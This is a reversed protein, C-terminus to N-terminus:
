VAGTSPAKALATLRSAEILVFRQNACAVRYRTSSLKRRLNFVHVDITKEQVTTDNWIRIAIEARSLGLAKAGRLAEFIMLERRTLKPRWSESEVELLREVAALLVGKSVADDLVLQVGMQYWLKVQNMDDDANVVAIGLLDSCRTFGSLIGDPWSAAPIVVVNGDLSVMQEPDTPCLSVPSLPKLIRHLRRVIRGAGHHDPQLLFLKRKGEM